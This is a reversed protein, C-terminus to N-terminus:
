AVLPERGRRDIKVVEGLAVGALTARVVLGVVEDVRGSAEGAPAADHLRSAEAAAAIRAAQARADKVIGAAEVRADDVLQQALTRADHEDGDIVRGAKM